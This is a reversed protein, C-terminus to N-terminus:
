AGGPAADSDHGAPVPRPDFPCGCPRHDARTSERELAVAVWQPVRQVGTEWRCIVERRGSLGLWQSLGGQTLGHATRWQRLTAATMPATRM